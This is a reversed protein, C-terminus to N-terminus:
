GVPSRVDGRSAGRAPWPAPEGEIAGAIALARRHTAVDHVRFLRVGQQHHVVSVVTSGVV